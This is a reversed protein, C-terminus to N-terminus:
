RRLYSVIAAAFAAALRHQFHNSTLMRADHANRMNGCEVLVKPQTALNLGALDNRKAIGRHGDYTSVPMATMALLKRRILMGFRASSGVVHRNVRDKVPELIAFGRGGSPGGDAHIDVAVDAHAADIIRARRNVCPGVGHNSHRTMVVAAGLRRLDRALFTAVRYTFRPEPYGANTQTGTTDCDERERGNWVQHGLYAPDTYNRGNHGPDIGIVRGDLPPRATALSAQPLQHPQALPTAAPTGCGALVLLAVIAHPLRSM